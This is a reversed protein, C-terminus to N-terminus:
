WFVRVSYYFFFFFIYKALFVNIVFVKKKPCFVQPRSFQFVYKKKTNTERITSICFQIYIMPSKNQNNFKTPLYLKLKRVFRQVTVTRIHLQQM